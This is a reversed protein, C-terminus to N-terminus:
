AERTLDQVRAMAVEAVADFLALSAHRATVHAWVTNELSYLCEELSIKRLPSRMLLVSLAHGATALSVRHEGPASVSDKLSSEDGHAIEDFIVPLAHDTTAFDASHESPRSFQSERVLQQGGQLRM